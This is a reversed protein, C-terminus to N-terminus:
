SKEPAMAASANELEKATHVGSEWKKCRLKEDCFRNRVTDRNM